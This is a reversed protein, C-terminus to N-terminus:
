PALHFLLLPLRDSRRAFSPLFRHGFVGRPFCGVPSLTAREVRSLIGLPSPCELRYSSATPSLDPLQSAASFDASSGCFSASSVLVAAVEHGVGSEATLCSVPLCFFLPSFPVPVAGRLPVFGLPSLPPFLGILAPGAVCGFRGVEPHSRSLDRCPSGLRRFRHSPAGSLARSSRGSSSWM